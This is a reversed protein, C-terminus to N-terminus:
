ENVRQLLQLCNGYFFQSMKQLFGVKGLKFSGVKLAAKLTKQIQM